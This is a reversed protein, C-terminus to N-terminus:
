KRNEAEENNKRRLQNNWPDLCTSIPELKRLIITYLDYLFSVPWRVKGNKM